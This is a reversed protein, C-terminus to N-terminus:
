APPGATIATAKNHTNLIFTKSVTDFIGAAGGPNTCPIYDHLVEGSRYHTLRYFSGKPSTYNDKYTGIAKGNAGFTRSGKTGTLSGGDVTYTNNLFDIDYEKAANIGVTRISSSKSNFYYTVYSSSNYLREISFFYGASPSFNLITLPSLSSTPRQTEMFKFYIRDTNCTVNDLLSFRTYNGDFVIYELETYGAPLRAAEFVATLVRDGTVTFAYEANASVTKEGEQWGTFKYGDAPEASVVAQAGERYQGAGTVTGSGDPDVSATVTYVPLEEFAATLAQDGSVTFTYPNSTSVQEGESRWSVFRYDSEPVATVTVQGGEPFTGGGSVAGGGEPEVLLTIVRLKVFVAVLERDAGAPFSYVAQTSVVAGRETWQTFEYGAGAVAAVTVTQGELYTGSGTVTGGDMDSASVSIVHTKTMVASLSRDRDLAFTYEPGEAVTEGGETWHAFVYGDGAAAAVTVETDIDYVGAGAAEGAEPPDVAVSVQFQKLAFAATLSRSREVPFTYVPDDSALEGAEMWAAFDYKAGALATVTATEGRYFVGAGSATGGGAPDAFVRIHYAPTVDETDVHYGLTELRGILYAAAQTVRNLDAAGYAGRPGAEWEALEEPTGRWQRTRPDWLGNLYKARDVDAQTRDTILTDMIHEM